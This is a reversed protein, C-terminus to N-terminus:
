PQGPGTTRNSIMVIYNGRVSVENLLCVVKAIINKDTKSEHGPVAWLM